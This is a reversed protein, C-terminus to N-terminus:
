PAATIPGLCRIAMLRQCTEHVNAEGMIRADIDAIQSALQRLESMVIYDASSVVILGWALLIAAQIWRGQMALVLVGPWWVLSPGVFPVFSFLAAMAGWLLPSRLGTM